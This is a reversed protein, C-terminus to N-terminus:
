QPLVIRIVMPRPAVIDMFDFSAENSLVSVNGSTDVAQGRVFITGANEPAEYDVDLQSANAEVRFNRLEGACGVDGQSDLNISANCVYIDYHSLDTLASGDANVTVPDWEVVFSQDSATALSAGGGILFLVMLVAFLFKKM